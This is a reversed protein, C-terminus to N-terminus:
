GNTQGETALAARAERCRDINVLTSDGTPTNEEMEAIRAFPKLAKRLTANEEALKRAKENWFRWLHEDDSGQTQTSPAPNKLQSIFTDVEARSRVFLVRHGLKELREATELQHRSYVGGQPRKCECYVTVGGPLVLIRDLFRRGPVDGKLAMGGLEKEVRDFLHKEVTNELPGKGM